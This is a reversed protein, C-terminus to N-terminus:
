SARTLNVFQRAADPRLEWMARKHLTPHYYKRAIIVHTRMDARRARRSHESM